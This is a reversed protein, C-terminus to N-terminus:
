ISFKVPAACECTLRTLNVSSVFPFLSHRKVVMGKRGSKRELSKEMLRHDFGM